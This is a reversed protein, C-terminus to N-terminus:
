QTTSRQRLWQRQAELAANVESTSQPGKISVRVGDPAIAWRTGNSDLDYHIPQQGEAGLPNLGESLFQKMPERFQTLTKGGQRIPTGEPTFTTVERPNYSGRTFDEDGMVYRANPPLEMGRRTAQVIAERNGQRALQMVRENTWTAPRGENGVRPRGPENPNVIGRPEPPEKPMRTPLKAMLGPNDPSGLEPTPKLPARDLFTDYPGPNTPTGLEGKPVLVDALGFDLHFPPKFKFTGPEGRLSQAPTAPKRLVDAAKNTALRYGEPANAGLHAGLYAGGLGGAVAGVTRGADEGLQPAGLKSGIYSGAKGGGYGLGSSGALGGITALPAEWLGLPVATMASALSANRVLEHFKEQPSRGATSLTGGYEPATTWWNEARQLLSPKPAPGISGNSSEGVTAGSPIPQGVTAGKPIPQGAQGNPM